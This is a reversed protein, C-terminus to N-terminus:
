RRNITVVVINGKLPKGDRLWKDSSGSPRAYRVHVSKKTMPDLLIWYTIIPAIVKTGIDEEMYYGNLTIFGENLLGENVYSKLFYNVNSSDELYFFKQTFGLANVRSLFFDPSDDSYFVLYINHFTQASSEYLNLRHEPVYGLRTSIITLTNLDTQYSQYNQYAIYAVPLTVLICAGLILLLLILTLQKPTM